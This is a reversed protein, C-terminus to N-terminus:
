EVPVSENGHAHFPCRWSVDVSRGSYQRAESVAGFDAIMPNTNGQLARDRARIAEQLAAYRGDRRLTEFQDHRNFVLTPWGFRRARRSSHPHLAVVFFARGAFSFSFREDNPDCSVSEDWAFHPRDLDHLSQLQQWLLREFAEEERSFPGAFAAVFSTFLPTEGGIETVFAHLDRALGATTGREAMRGYLGMRYTGRRIASKAGVCVFDPSLILARFSDHITEQLASPQREPALLMELKGGRWAAYSSNRRGERTAFPGGPSSDPTTM